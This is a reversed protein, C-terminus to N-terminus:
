CHEYPLVGLANVSIVLVDTGDHGFYMAGGAGDEDVVLFPDAGEIPAQGDTAGPHARRVEEVSSQVTIGEETAPGEHQTETPATLAVQLDGVRGEYNWAYVGPESGELTGAWAACGEAMGADDTSWGLEEALAVAEDWAMDVEFPGIADETITWSSVDGPDETPEATPTPSPPASASPSAAPTSGDPTGTDGPTVPTACAALALLGVATVVAASRIRLTM